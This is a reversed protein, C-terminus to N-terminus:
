SGCSLKACLEKIKEELRARDRRKKALSLAKRYASVAEEERGLAKLIDGYHENIIPDYPALKLARKIESLAKEYEGKRFYVWALSDIIYGDDPKKALAKRIYAEAQDLNRNLDAYTYGVFNLLTPDDPHKELLPELLRLAEEEKGQCVLLLAASVSLDLDEPFKALGEKVIEFGLPCADLEDFITGALLYLTKDKPREALARALLQRVKQPDKILHALRRLALPFLEDEVPVQEYAHIAEKVKGEREYAVGLYFWANYNQPDKETLDKLIAIAETTKGLDLYILAKRLLIRPTAGLQRELAELVQLAKEYQDQRLYLRLLAEYLHFAEPVGKLGERYIKEAETFAGIKELFEGYELYVAQNEPSLELAKRYYFRAKEFDGKRRWLRALELSLAANKPNKQYLRELTAIAGDLDNRHLYITALVSLAEAYDPYKELLTELTEIARAYRKQSWYIKALLFLTEKDDPSLSLIKRALTIAKDYAGTEAYLRMLEKRPFLAQPDCRVVRELHKKAQSYNGKSILYEAVLFHYYNEQPRCRALASSSAALLFFLGLLLSLPRLPWPTIRRM